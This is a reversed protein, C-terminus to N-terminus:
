RSGLPDGGGCAPPRGPCVRSLTCLLDLFPRVLRGAAPHDASAPGVVMWNGGSLEGLRPGGCLCTPCRTGASFQSMHAEPPPYRQCVVGSLPHRGLGAGSHRTTAIALPWDDVSELRHGSSLNWRTKPTGVLTVTRRHPTSYCITPVRVGGPSGLRTLASRSGLNAETCAHSLPGLHARSPRHGQSLSSPVPDPVDTRM